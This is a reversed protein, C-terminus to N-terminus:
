ITSAQTLRLTGLYVCGTAGKGIIKDPDYSYNGIQTIKRQM